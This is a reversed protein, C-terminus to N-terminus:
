RSRGYRLAEIENGIFGMRRFRDQRTRLIAQVDFDGPPGPKPLPKPAPRGMLGYRLADVAHDECGDALDDAHVESFTLRPLQRLLNPCRGCFIQLGATM